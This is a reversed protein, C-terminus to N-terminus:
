KDSWFDFDNRILCNNMGDYKGSSFPYNMDLIIPNLNYKKINETVYKEGGIPIGQEVFENINKYAYSYKLMTDFSGIAFQDNYVDSKISNPLYINESSFVNFNPVFNIAFDFRSRIVWDYKIHNNNTLINCLDISKYVSYFSSVINYSCYRFFRPYDSVLHQEILASKPNYLNFLEKYDFFDYYWSHIFVDCDFKSLLNNYHYSYGNEFSRPQGSLCLAIKM